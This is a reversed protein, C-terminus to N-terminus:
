WSNMGLDLRAITTRLYRVLFAPAATQRCRSHALSACWSPPDHFAYGLAGIIRVGALNM